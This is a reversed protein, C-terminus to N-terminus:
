RPPTPSFRSTKGRKGLQGFGAAGGDLVARGYATPEVGRASRELLRVGLTRELEGISRSIASQATNLLVAAKSMSGAQVVAMLVHLDQLKMRRGIRDSLEMRAGM